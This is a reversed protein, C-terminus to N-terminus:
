FRLDVAALLHHLCQPTIAPFVPFVPHELSRILAIQPKRVAGIPGASLSFELVPEYNLRNDFNM